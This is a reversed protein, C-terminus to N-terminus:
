MHVNTGIDVLWDTSLIILNLEPSLTVYRDDTSSPGINSLVMNTQPNTPQPLAHEYNQYEKKMRCVKAM